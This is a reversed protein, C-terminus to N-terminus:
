MYSTSLQQLTQLLEEDQVQYIMTLAEQRRPVCLLEKANIRAKHMKFPRSPDLEFVGGAMDDANRERKPPVSIFFTRYSRMIKELQSRNFSFSDELVIPVQTKVEVKLGDMLMDKTDDFPNLSEIVTHGQERLIHAVIREGTLGLLVKRIENDIEITRM